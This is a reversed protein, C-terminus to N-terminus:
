ILELFHPNYNPTFENGLVPITTGWDVPVSRNSLSNDYYQERLVVELFCAELCPKERRITEGEGGTNHKKEGSSEAVTQVPFQKATDLFTHLTALFVVGSFPSFHSRLFPPFILGGSLNPCEKRPNWGSGTPYVKQAKEEM